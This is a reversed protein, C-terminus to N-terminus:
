IKVRNLFLSSLVVSISSFAMALGALEPSLSLGIFSFIGAAIPIGIANYIFSWFLNLKIRGFTKRGLRLSRVVDMLDNKILVIEGSEIAIDSGSGMAIGLDATELAPADNIGDGVFAVRNDSQLEKIKEAKEGPLVESIVEDIGVEKAVSNAVLQNDGTIMVTKMKMKKLEAIAAKSTPKIVDKIAILGTVSDNMGVVVVTKAESELQHLKEKLEDSIRKDEILKLNGVFIDQNRIKGIIGKGEIANFSQVEDLEVRMDKAKDMVAKALPHESNNELSAAQKLIIKQDGIVDTVEPNGATITGTKDFVVTRIQNAIEIAEGNKILIGKKSGVGTGVMLATPTALGLACPCAIIIVSVAYLLSSVFDNGIFVYWVLFTIIAAILVVPVFISSIKDVTKQVPASSNQAKSVMEVIQSLMTYNGVKTAKYKFSGTKNMTSGTVQDGVVKNVPMSEGTLMSEDITSQGEIIEGDVPLKQGPKVILVDNIKVESLPVEVVENNRIVNAVDAQLQMLKSISDSARNRMKEEFVQGLTIFVIVFAAVEFFVSQHNLMAYISYVYATKTGVAILTDMNAFHNNFSAWASKLFPGAAFIMVLTTLIFDTFSGGPLMFHNIPMLIMQLLMPLSLILAIYFRKTMSM